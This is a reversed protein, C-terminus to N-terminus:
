QAFVKNLRQALIGYYIEDKSNESYVRNLYDDVSCNLRSGTREIFRVLEFRNQINSMGYASVLVELISPKDESEIHDLVRILRSEEFRSDVRLHGQLHYFELSCGM